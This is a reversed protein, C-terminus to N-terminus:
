KGSFAASTLWAVFSDNFTTCVWEPWEGSWFDFDFSFGKANNPVKIKLTIGAADHVDTAPDCGNVAKPYGPPAVSGTDNPDMPCGGKFVGQPDYCQDYETAWGSSLVGFANGQRPKIKQGYKTLIGHQDAVPATTSNYGKTYTASTVFKCLGIAKAFDAAPGALNLGTDCAGQPNDVTGDNDDDCGNGPVDFNGPDPNCGGQPGSDGPQFGADGNCGFGQCGGGDGNPDGGDGFGKNGRGSCAVLAVGVVALYGLGALKM